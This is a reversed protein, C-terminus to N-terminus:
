ELVGFERGYNLIYPGRPPVNTIPYYDYLNLAIWEVPGEYIAILDDPLQNKELDLAHALEELDQPWKDAM